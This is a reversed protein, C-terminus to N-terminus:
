CGTLMPLLFFPVGTPIMGDRAALFTPFPRHVNGTKIRSRLLLSSVEFISGPCHVITDMVDHSELCNVLNKQTQKRMQLVSSYAHTATGVAAAVADEPFRLGM